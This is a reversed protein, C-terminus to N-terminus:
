EKPQKAFSMFILKADYANARVTRMTSATTPMAHDDPTKAWTHGTL